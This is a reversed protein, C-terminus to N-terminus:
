WIEGTKDSSAIKCRSTAQSANRDLPKDNNQATQAADQVWCCSNCPLFQWRYTLLSQHTKSISKSISFNNILNRNTETTSKVANKTIQLSLMRRMSSLNWVFGIIFLLCIWNSAKLLGVVIFSLLKAHFLENKKDVFKLSVLLNSSAFFFNKPQANDRNVVKNKNQKM